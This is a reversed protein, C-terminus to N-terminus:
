PVTPATNNVATCTDGILELNGGPNSTVTNEVVTSPCLVSMGVGNTDLVTNGSLTGGLSASIGTGTNQWVTNGSLTSGPGARLAVSDASNGNNQVISDKIRGATSVQIGHEFNGEAIVKDAISGVGLILGTDTNNQVRVNEVTSGAGVSIGVAFGKVAGNKITVNSASNQTVIGFNSGTNSAITFGNLDLTINSSEIILCDHGSTFLDKVLVLSLRNELAITQCRDVPRIGDDGAWSTEVQSFVAGALVTVACIGRMWWTVRQSTVRQM